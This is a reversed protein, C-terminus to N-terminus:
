RVEIAKAYALANASEPAEKNVIIVPKNYRAKIVPAAYTAGGGILVHRDAQPLALKAEITALTDVLSRNLEERIAPHARPNRRMEGQINWRAGPDSSIIAIDSFLRDIGADFARGRKLTGDNFFVVGYTRGGIDHIAIKGLQQTTPLLRLAEAGEGFVSASQISISRPRGMYAYEHAGVYRERITQGWPEYISLPAGTGLNINLTACEPYLASVGALFAAFSRDALYRKYAEDETLSEAMLSDHGPLELADAGIVYNIGKYTIYHRSTTVAGMGQYPRRTTAVFSPFFVVNGDSSAVSVTANGIDAGINLVSMGKREQAEHRLVAARLRKREAAEM